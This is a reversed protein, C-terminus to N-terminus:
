ISVFLMYVFKLTVYWIPFLRSWEIDISKHIQIKLIYMRLEMVYTMEIPKIHLHIM